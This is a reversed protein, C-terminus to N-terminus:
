IKTEAHQCSLFNNKRGYGLHPNFYLSYPWDGRLRGTAAIMADGTIAEIIERSGSTQKNPLQAVPAHRRRRM